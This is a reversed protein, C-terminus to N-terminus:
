NGTQQTVRSDSNSAIQERNYMKVVSESNTSHKIFKYKRNYEVLMSSSIEPTRPLVILRDKSVTNFNDAGHILYKAGHKDLVANTIFYPTKVVESVYRISELIEKRYEWALLPIHGKYKEIDADTSLGVVVEGYKAAKRLLRIHGHHLLTASMDVIVRISM